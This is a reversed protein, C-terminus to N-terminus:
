NKLLETRKGAAAVAFLTLGTINGGPRNFSAVLGAEIPNEGMLFIIPITQTAGKAALASPEGGTAVIAAVRRGV